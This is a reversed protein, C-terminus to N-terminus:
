WGCLLSRLFEFKIRGLGKTLLDARQYTTDIKEVFVQEDSTSQTFQRFWHYKIAYHKSRPTVRGPEMKALTLAGANDEWVTTKFTTLKNTSIGIGNAIAKLTRQFPIVQKMCFSLANYEAEMTSLSIEPM